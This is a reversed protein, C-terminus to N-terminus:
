RRLIDIHDRGVVKHLITRHTHNAIQIWVGLIHGLLSHRIKLKLSRTLIATYTGRDAHLTVAATNDDGLWILTRGRVLSTQLNAILENRDIALINGLSGGILHRRFELTRGACLHAQTNLTQHCALYLLHLNLALTDRDGSHWISAIHGITYAIYAM